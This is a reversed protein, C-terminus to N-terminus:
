WTVPPDALHTSFALVVSGAEIRLDKDALRPIPIRIRVCYSVLLAGLREAAVVVEPHAHAEYAVRIQHQQPEFGISIPRLAPLGVAHARQLSGAIVRTLAQADFEIERRDVITM